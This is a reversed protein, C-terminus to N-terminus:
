PKLNKELKKKKKKKQTRKTLELSTFADDYQCGLDKTVVFKTLDLAAKSLAKKVKKSPQANKDRNMVSYLDGLDKGGERTCIHLLASSEDAEMVTVTYSNKEDVPKLENGKSDVTNNKATYKAGSSELTGTGINYFSKKSNSSFHYFAEKVTGGSQRPAFSFCFKDTVEPNTDLYHTEYWTGSFFKAKALRQKPIINVSCDESIGMTSTLSLITVALLASYLEM